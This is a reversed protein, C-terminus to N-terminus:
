RHRKKRRQGTRAGQSSPGEPGAQLLRAPQARGDLGVPPVPQGPHTWAAWICAARRHRQRAAWGVREAHATTGVAGPTLAISRVSALTHALRADTIVDVQDGRDLVLPCDCLVLYEIHDGLNNVLCVTAAPTGPHGLDCGSGHDARVGEIAASLLQTLSARSDDTYVYSLQAALRRVYWAPSHLCGTEVEPPSTAGDLVGVLGGVAFVYDENVSGGPAGESLLRVEMM